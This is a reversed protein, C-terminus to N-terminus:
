IIKIYTSLDHKKGRVRQKTQKRRHGDKEFIALTHSAPHVNWIQLMQLYSYVPFYNEVFVDKDRFKTKM